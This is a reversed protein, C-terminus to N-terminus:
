SLAEQNSFLVCLFFFNGRKARVSRRKVARRVAKPPASHIHWRIGREFNRSGGSSSHMITDDWRPLSSHTTRPFSYSSCSRGERMCQGGPARSPQQGSLYTTRRQDLESHLLNHPQYCSFYLWRPILGGERFLHCPLHHNIFTDSEWVENHTSYHGMAAFSTFSYNM